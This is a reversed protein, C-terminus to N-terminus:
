NGGQDSRSVGLIRNLLYKQFADSDLKTSTEKLEQRWEIVGKCPDQRSTGVKDNLMDIADTLIQKQKENLNKCDKIGVREGEGGGM